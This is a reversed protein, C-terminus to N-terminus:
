EKEKGQHLIKTQVDGSKAGHHSNVAWRGEELKSKVAATHSEWRWQSGKEALVSPCSLSGQRSAPLAPLAVKATCPERPHKLLCLGSLSDRRGM